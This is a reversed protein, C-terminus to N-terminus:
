NELSTEGSQYINIAEISFDLANVVGDANLDAHEDSEYMQVATAALDLANIFDDKSLHVDGALLDFTEGFTFDLQVGDDVLNAALFKTLHSLGKFSSEYQGPVLEVEVTGTGGAGTPVTFSYVASGASNGPDFLNLGGRTGWNNASPVRKEPHAKVGITVLEEEEEEEPPKEVDIPPEDDDGADPDDVGDDPPPPTIIVPGSGGGGVPSDDLLEAIVADPPTYSPAAGLGPLTEGGGCPVGSTIDFVVDIAVSASVSLATDVPKGDYDTIVVQVQGFYEDECIGDPIAISFTEELPNFITSAPVDVPNSAFAFWGEENQVKGILQVTAERSPDFNYLQITDFITIDDDTMYYFAGPYSPSLAFKARASVRPTEATAGFVTVHTMVLLLVAAFLTRLGKEMLAKSVMKM